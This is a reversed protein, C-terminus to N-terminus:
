FPAIGGHIGGHLLLQCKSFFSLAFPYVLGLSSGSLLDQACVYEVTAFVFVRSGHIELQLRLCAAHNGGFTGPRM